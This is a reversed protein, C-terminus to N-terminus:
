SMTDLFFGAYSLSCMALLRLDKLTSDSTDFRQFLMKMIDATVPDKKKITRSLKRKASEVINRLLESKCLNHLGATDHAWKICYFASEITSHHQVTETLHQLYLAIHLESCPLVSIIESYNEAWFMIKKFAGIYKMVTNKARSNVITSNLNVFLTKLDPHVVQSSM